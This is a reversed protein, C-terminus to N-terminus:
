RAINCTQRGRIERSCEDLAERCAQGRVDSDIPGTETESYTQIFMGAPDLRNVSCSETKTRPYPNPPYPDNRNDILGRNVCTSGYTDNRALEVKCFQDSMRCADMENAGPASFSRVTRGYYDVLDTQCIIARPPNPPYPIPNPTDFKFQCSANYYQGNAQADALARRCDYDAQGCADQQSYSSRTFTEYEQGYNDKIVSTCMEASALSSIGLFLIALLSKM